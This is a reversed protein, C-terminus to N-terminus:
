AAKILISSTNEINKNKLEVVPEVDTTSRTLAKRALVQSTSSLFTFLCRVRAGTRSCDGPELLIQDIAVTSASSRVM